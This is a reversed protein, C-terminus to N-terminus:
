VSPTEHERAANRAALRAPRRHQEAVPEGRIARAEIEADLPPRQRARERLRAEIAERQLQAPAACTSHTPCLWPASSPSTAAPSNGSRMAPTAAIAGGVCM